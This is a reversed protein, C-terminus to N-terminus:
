RMVRMTKQIYETLTKQDHGDKEGEIIQTTGNNDLSWEVDDHECKLSVKSGLSVSVLTPEPESSSLCGTFASIVLLLVSGKM